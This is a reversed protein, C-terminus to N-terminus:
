CVNSVTNEYLREACRNTGMRRVASFNKSLTLGILALPFNAVFSVVGADRRELM